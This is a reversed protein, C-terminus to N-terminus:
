NIIMTGSQASFPWLLSEVANLEGLPTYGWVERACALQTVSTPRSFVVQSCCHWNINTTELLFTAESAIRCCRIWLCKGQPACGRVGALIHMSVCMYIHLCAGTECPWVSKQLRSPHGRLVVNAGGWYSIDEVATLILIRGKTVVLYLLARTIWTFTSTNNM